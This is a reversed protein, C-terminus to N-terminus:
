PRTTPGRHHPLGRAARSRDTPLTPPPTRPPMALVPWWTRHPRHHAPRLPLHVLEVHQCRPHPRTRGLGLAAGRPPRDSRRTRVLPHVLAGWRRIRLRQEQQDQTRHQHRRSHAGLHIGQSGFFSYLDPLADIRCVNAAEDLMVTIPPDVRGGRATAALGAVEFVRDVLAAVLVRSTGTGERSLLYLTAHRDGLGSAVLTWPDFEDITDMGTPPQRWTAPPTIWRAVSEVNLCSVAAAVTAYIGGRTEVPGEVDAEHAEALETFGHDALLGVPEPSRTAIWSAVDRVSRGSVAAALILRQLTQSAARNFFASSGSSAGGGGDVERMFHSALREASDIDTVASLPNADFRCDRHRSCTV